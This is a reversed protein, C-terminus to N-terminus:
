AAASALARTRRLFQVCWHAVESNLISHHGFGCTRVIEASHVAGHLQESQSIPVVTDDQDHVLLMACDLARLAAIPSLSEHDPRHGHLRCLREWASELVPASIRFMERVKDLILDLRAYGALLVMQAPQLAGSQTALLTAGAGLSHGIAVDVPGIAEAVKAIARSFEIPDSVKGSSAGHAPADFAVVRYGASLLPAVFPAMQAAAGGWGHVLLVLPRCDGGWEYVQITQDNFRLQSRRAWSLVEKCASDIRRKPPLRAVHYLLSAALNPSMRETARLASCVISRVVRKPRRKVGAAPRSSRSLTATNSVTPANM